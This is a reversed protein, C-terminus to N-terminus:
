TVTFVDYTWLAMCCRSAGSPLRAHLDGAPAGMMVTVIQAGSAHIREFLAQCAGPKFYGDQSGVINQYQNRLKAETQALVQNRGCFYRHGKKARM